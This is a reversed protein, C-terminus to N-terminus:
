AATDTIKWVIGDALPPWWEDGCVLVRASKLHGLRAAEEVAEAIGALEIGEQDLVIVHGRQAHFYYRPMTTTAM